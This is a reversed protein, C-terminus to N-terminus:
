SKLLRISRTLLIKKESEFEKEELDLIRRELDLLVRSSAELFYFILAHFEEQAALLPRM